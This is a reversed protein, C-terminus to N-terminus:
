GGGYLRQLLDDWLSESAFDLRGYFPSVTQGPFYISVGAARAMAAGRHGEAGVFRGVAVPYLLDMVVQARKKVEVVSTREILLRCFDYLDKYDPDSFRQARRNARGVALDCDSLNDMIARCMENLALVVEGVLALNLASQTISEEKGYSVLFERVIIAGLEEGNLTPREVLARLIPGYPWGAAPETEESGVSFRAVQRVQYAVELMQMLCADFGLVDIAAVGTALLGQSLAQQMEANDLFDCSTDDYGIGRALIANLTPAFLPPRKRRQALRAVLPRLLAERGARLSGLRQAVKYVDDEKWGSGHNWLVLATREAPYEQLAWSIFRALERPDGTNTEGLDSPVEDEELSTGQRLYYRRTVGEQMRDFQAVIAVQATSGAEKMEMLDSRGFDELNNDGALYVM